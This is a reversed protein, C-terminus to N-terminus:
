PTGIFGGHHEEEFRKRFYASTHGRSCERAAASIRLASVTGFGLGTGFVARIGQRIAPYSWYNKMGIAVHSDETNQFACNM